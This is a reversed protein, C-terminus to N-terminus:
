RFPIAYQIGGKTWLANLGRKLGLPTNPGVHRDFIEGYNGVAKIVGQMFTPELGIGPDTSEEGEFAVGLLSAIQPTEPKSAQADVNKSTVGLEEALIIGNVTLNIADYLDSDAGDLVAPALPEKSMIDPLIVLSEPGGDGAPFTSRIGALQSADSTWGDCRGAVFAEQIQPNEEFTLAKVKVGLQQAYDALNLETTTGSTVCVTTGDMDKVGSFGADAKVMMAQGDYFNVHAFNAGDAGERSSTATTNRVLVDYQGDRLAVFRNDADIPKLEHKTDDGFIAAAFARCFDIDFGEIQGGAGAFGFGPVTENVGCNLVGADTVKDLSNATKAGDGSKKDDDGGRDCAGALLAVAALLAVLRWTLGKRM